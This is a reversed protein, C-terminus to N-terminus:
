PKNVHGLAVIAESLDDAQQQEKDRATLNESAKGAYYLVMTLHLDRKEILRDKATKPDEVVVVKPEPLDSM